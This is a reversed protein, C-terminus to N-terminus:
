CGARCPRSRWWRGRRCIATRARSAPWWICSRRASGSSRRPSPSSRAASWRRASRCSPRTRTRSETAISRTRRAASCRPWCSGRCRCRRRPSRAWRRWRPRRTAAPGDAPRTRGAPQVARVDADRGALHRDAAALAPADGRGLLGADGRQQRGLLRDIHDDDARRRRRQGAEVSGRRQPHRHLLGVLAARPARVAPRAAGAARSQRRSRDSLGPRHQPDRQHDPDRDAGGGAPVARRPRPRGSRVPGQRVGPPGAARQDREAGVYDPHDRRDVGARRSAARFLRVIRRGLRPPEAQSVSATMAALRAVVAARPIRPGSRPPSGLRGAQQRDGANRRDVYETLEPPMRDRSPPSNRGGCARCYM